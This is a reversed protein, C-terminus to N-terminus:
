DCEPGHTNAAIFQEVYSSRFRNLRGVKVVELRGEALARRLWRETVGLREAMEQPTLLRDLDARTSKPQM